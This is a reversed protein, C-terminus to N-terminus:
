VQSAAAGFRLAIVPCREALEYHGHALELEVCTGALAARFEGLTPFSYDLSSGAYVDITAILDPAWGTAAAFHARDPVLLQFAAHIAQVAINPDAQASCLAMALRWKFAHFGQIQRAQALRVVDAAAEAVDPRIFMRFLGPRGPKLIRALQALVQRYEDPHRLNNFSGDGLAFDFQGAEFPMDRWDALVEQGNAGQQAKRKSVVAPDRDVGTIDGLPWLEQTMGLLVGRRAQGPVYREVMRCMLAVDDPGPRLPAGIKHWQSAHAAWHDHSVARSAPPDFPTPSDPKM